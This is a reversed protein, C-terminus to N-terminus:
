FEKGLYNILFNKPDQENNSSQILKFLRKIIKKYVWDKEWDSGSIYEEPPNESEVIKLIEKGLIGTRM